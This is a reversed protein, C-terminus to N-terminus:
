KITGSFSGSVPHKKDLSDLVSFCYTGAVATSTLTTIVVSDTAAHNSYYGRGKITLDVSCASGKYTGVKFASNSTLFVNVSNQAGAQWTMFNSADSNVISLTHVSSDSKYVMGYGNLPTSSGGDLSAAGSANNATADAVTSKSCSYLAFVLLSFSLISIKKIM